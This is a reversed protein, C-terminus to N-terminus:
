RNLAWILTDSDDSSPKRHPSLESLCAAVANAAESNSMAVLSLHGEHRRLLSCTLCFCCKFRKSGAFFFLGVVFILQKVTTSLFVVFSHFQNVILHPGLM